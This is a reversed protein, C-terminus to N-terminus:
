ILNTDSKIMLLCNVIEFLETITLKSLPLSQYRTHIDERYIAEYVMDFSAWRIGM